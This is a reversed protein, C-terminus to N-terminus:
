KGIALFERSFKRYAWFGRFNLGAFKEGNVTYDCIEYVPMAVQVYSVAHPQASNSNTHM